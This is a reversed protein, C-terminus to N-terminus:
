ARPILRDLRALAEERVLRYVSQGHSDMGVVLPGLDRVRLVWLSEPMGLDLWHVAQVAEVGRALLCACGPAAQLYVGGYRKLVSATGEAMGGKGVVVRVGLEGLMEAYPEMRISTTPGIVSITWKGDGAPIAVPGAHFVGMGALEVPPRGGSELSERLRLHAMDRMTFLTGNLYVVDGVHLDRVDAETVPFHLRTTVM